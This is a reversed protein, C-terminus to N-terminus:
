LRSVDSKQDDGRPAGFTLASTAETELRNPRSDGAILGVKLTSLM